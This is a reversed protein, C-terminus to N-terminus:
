SQYGYIVIQVAIVTPPVLKSMVGQPCYKGNFFTFRTPGFDYNGCPPRKQQCVENYRLIIRISFDFGPDGSAHGYIDNNHIFQDLGMSALTLHRQYASPWCFTLGSSAM